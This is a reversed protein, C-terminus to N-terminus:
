KASRVVAASLGSGAECESGGLAAVLAAFSDFIFDPQSRVLAAPTAYGWTVAGAAIGVAKAADIDRTEDGIAIADSPSVGTTRLLRRLKAAKGFLSSGCAFRTVLDSDVSGLVARINSEANSSVIAIEIGASSLSRLTTRAGPFLDIRQLNNAAEARFHRAIAPMRWLPVGLRRVVDATPLGRLSELEDEALRRYGFRAAAANLTQVFWDASDALTGDFDFIALRYM